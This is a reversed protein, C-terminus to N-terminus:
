ITADAGQVDEGADGPDDSGPEDKDAHPREGDTIPIFKVGNDICWQVLRAAYDAHGKQEWQFMIMGLLSPVSEIKTTGKKLREALSETGWFLDRKGDTGWVLTGEGKGADTVQAIRRSGKGGPKRDHSVIAGRFIGAPAKNGVKAREKRPGRQHMRSVMIRTEAVDVLDPGGGPNPFTAIKNRKILGYIIQPRIGLDKAVQTPKAREAM